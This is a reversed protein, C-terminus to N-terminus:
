GKKGNKSTKKISITTMKEVLRELKQDLKRQFLFNSYNMIVLIMFAVIMLLDLARLFQFRRVLPNLIQPFLAFLSFAIWLSFWFLFSELLIFRKKYHIFAVYIMFIAFPVLILQIASPTM